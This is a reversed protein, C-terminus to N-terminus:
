DDTCERRIFNSIDAPASFVVQARDGQMGQGVLVPKGKLPGKSSSDAKFRLNFEWFTYTNGTAVTVQYADPCYKLSTVQRGPPAKKLDPMRSKGKSESGSSQSSKLFAIIDERMAPDTIPRIRMSTGPVLKAPNELWQDLAKPTWSIDAGKLAESYRKFGKAKGAPRDIVGFLSPGTLHYGPDISHCAACQRFAKAGRNVDGQAQASPVVILSISLTAILRFIM